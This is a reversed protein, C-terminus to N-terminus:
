QGCSAFATISATSSNLLDATVIRITANWTTGSPYSSTLAMREWNNRIETGTSGAGINQNMVFGGGLLKQGASCSAAITATTNRVSITASTASVIATSGIVGPVGQPGTAGTAGTAGAAGNTGNM